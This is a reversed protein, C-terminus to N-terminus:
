DQAAVHIHTLGASVPLPPHPMSSGYALGLKTDQSGKVDVGKVVDAECWLGERETRRAGLVGKGPPWDSSSPNDTASILSVM